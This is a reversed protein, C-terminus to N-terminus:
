KQELQLAFYPLWSSLPLADICLIGGAEEPRENEVGTQPPEQVAASRAVQSSTSPVSSSQMQHHDSSSSSSREGPRRCPDFNTLGLIGRGRGRTKSYNFKKIVDAM